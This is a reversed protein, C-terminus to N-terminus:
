NPRLNHKKAWENNWGYIKVHSVINQEAVCGALKSATLGDKFFLHEHPCDDALIGDRIAKLIDLLREAGNKDLHISVMQGSSDTAFSLLYDQYVIAHRDMTKFLLFIKECEQHEAWSYSDIFEEVRRFADLERVRDAISSLEALDGVTLQKDPMCFRFAPEALFKLDPPLSDLIGYDRSM